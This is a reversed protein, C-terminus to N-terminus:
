ADIEATVLRLEAGAPVCTEYRSTAGAAAAGVAAGAAAGVVAGRTDGGAVRGVIAGLIAGGIVKKKDSGGSDVRRRELTGTPVVEGAIPHTEGNATISKVRFTINATDAGSGREVSAVELVVTSGAPYLQGNASTVPQATYAVMKDGPRNADSCARDGISLGIVTGAAIGGAVPEPEAPEPAPEPTPAPTEAVAPPAPEPAPEREAVPQQRAARTPRRAPAKPPSTVPREEREVAVPPRPAEPGDALEPMPAAIASALTLDRALASDSTEDVNAGDRCAAMAVYSAAAVAAM